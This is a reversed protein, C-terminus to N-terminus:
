PSHENHELLPLINEAFTEESMLGRHIYVVSGERNLVVTHPVTGARNGWAAMVNPYRSPDAVLVPYNIELTRQVNRLKQVVDMGVGVVQLGRASYKEQWAVLDRIEYQCPACWSAWFNLLIVKGQWETLSHTAGELDPLTLTRRPNATSSAVNDSQRTIVKMGQASSVSLGDAAANGGAVLLLLALLIRCGRM